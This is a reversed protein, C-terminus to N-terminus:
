GASQNPRHKPPESPQGRRASQPASPPGSCSGASARWPDWRPRRRRNPRQLRYGARTGRIPARRWGSAFPSEGRPSPGKQTASPTRLSRPQTTAHNRPQPTALNRPQSTAHNRAHPPPPADRFHLRAPPLPREPPPAVSRLPSTGQPSSLGSLRGTAPSTPGSRAPAPRLPSGSAPVDRPRPPPGGVGGALRGRRPAGQSAGGLLASGALRERCPAGQLAGGALGGQSGSGALRGWCAVGQLGGGAAANGEPLGEPRRRRLASITSFASM